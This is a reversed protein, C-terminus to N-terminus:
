ALDSESNVKEPVSTGDCIYVYEDEVGLGSLFVVVSLCVGTSIKNFQLLPSLHTGDAEAASQLSRAFATAQLPCCFYIPSM